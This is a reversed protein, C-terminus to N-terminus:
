FNFPGPLTEVEVIFVASETARFHAPRAFAPFWGLNGLLLLPGAPVPGDNWKFPAVGM